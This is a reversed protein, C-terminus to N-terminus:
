KKSPIVSSNTTKGEKSTTARYRLCRGVFNCGIGLNTSPSIVLISVRTSSNGGSKRLKAKFFRIKKTSLILRGYKELLSMERDFTVGLLIKPTQCM